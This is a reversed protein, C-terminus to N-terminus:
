VELFADYSGPLAHCFCGTCLGRGQRPDIPMMASAPICPASPPLSMRRSNAIQRQHTLKMLRWRAIGRQQPASTLQSARRM